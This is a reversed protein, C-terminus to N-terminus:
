NDGLVLYDFGNRNKVVEQPTPQESVQQHKSIIYDKVEIDRLSEIDSQYMDLESM